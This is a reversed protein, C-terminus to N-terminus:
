PNWRPILFLLILFRGYLNDFFRNRKLSISFTWGASKAAPRFESSGGGFLPIQSLRVYFYAATVLSSPLGGSASLRLEKSGATEAPLHANEPLRM